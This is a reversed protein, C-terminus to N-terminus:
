KVQLRHVVHNFHGVFVDGCVVLSSIRVTRLLLFPADGRREGKPLSYQHRGVVIRGDILEFVHGM